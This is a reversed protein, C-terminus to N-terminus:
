IIKIKNFYLLSSIIVNFANGMETTRKIPIKSISFKLYNDTIVFQNITKYRVNHPSLEYLFIALIDIIAEKKCYNNIDYRNQSNKFIKKLNNYEEDIKNNLTKKKFVKYFKSIKSNKIYQLLNPLPIKRLFEEYVHYKPHYHCFNVPSVFVKLNKIIRINRSFIIDDKINQSIYGWIMLSIEKPLCNLFETLNNFIPKFVDDKKCFSTMSNEQITESDDDDHQFIGFKNSRDLCYTKNLYSM